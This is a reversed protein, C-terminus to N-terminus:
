SRQAPKKDRAAGAAAVKASSTPLHLAAFGDELAPPLPPVKDGHLCRTLIAASYILRPGPRNFFRQGDAAYLHGTTNARLGTMRHKRMALALEDAATELNRGCPAALLVDPDHDRIEKWTTARSPKRAEIFSYRGGAMDVFQSTWHGAAMPPDVWDLVVVSPRGLGAVRRRIEKALGWQKLLERKAPEAMGLAKGLRRIESLLDDFNRVDFSELRPKSPLQQVLRELDKPTVACVDCDDQAIILDPRLSKMLKKDLEFLSEGKHSLRKVAADLADAPLTPDVRPRTVRPRKTAEPPFDCEHSVGVVRDMLGLVFLLETAGPVLSVIREPVELVPQM